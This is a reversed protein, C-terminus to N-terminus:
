LSSRLNLGSFYSMPVFTVVSEGGSKMRGKAWGNERGGGGQLSGITEDYLYLSCIKLRRVCM